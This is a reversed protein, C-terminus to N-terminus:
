MLAVTMLGIAAIWSGVVRVAIHSWPRRLSLVLGAGLSIMVVGASVVGTNFNFALMEARMAAGNAYGHSLGFVAALVVLLAFPLRRALAVLGGLIIFSSANVYVVASELGHPALLVGILLGLAFCGLVTRAGKAGQQGALLGIALFPFVHELATLPHILGAYFDGFRADVLHAHAADPILVCAVAVILAEAPQRQMM